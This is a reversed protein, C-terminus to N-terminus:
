YLHCLVQFGRLFGCRLDAQSVLVFGFVGFLLLGTEFFFLIFYFLIFYFLIFLYIFFLLFFVLCVFIGCSPKFISQQNISQNISQSLGSREV